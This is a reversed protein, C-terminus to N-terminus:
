TANDAPPWTVQRRFDVHRILEPSLQSNPLEVLVIQLGAIRGHKFAPICDTDNTIVILRSVSRNQSFTAVDLGIRMDVGKQEFDPKFDDDTLVTTAIPVRKPRFGRFKLVGRRVAILDKEALKNLWQDSGHFEKEAGSVPLKAKGNFPACDYYLIRSLAETQMICAHGVKEIYDPDYRKGAKRSLM